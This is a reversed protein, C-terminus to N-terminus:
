MQIGSDKQDGGSDSTSTSESTSASPVEVMGSPVDPTLKQRQQVVHTLEHGILERGAASGPDYRGPAFHLDNGQSFSLAGVHIPRHSEHVRVDSFDMGHLAEMQHQLSQPLMRGPRPGGGGGGTAERSLSQGQGNGQGSPDLRLTM